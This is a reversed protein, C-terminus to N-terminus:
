SSKTQENNFHSALPSSKRISNRGIEKPTTRESLLKFSISKEDNDPNKMMEKMKRKM